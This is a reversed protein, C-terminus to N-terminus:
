GLSLHTLLKSWQDESLAASIEYLCHDVLFRNQDKVFKLAFVLSAALRAQDFKKLYEERSCTASTKLYDRDLKEAWTQYNQVTELGLPSDFASFFNQIYPDCNTLGIQQIALQCAMRVLDKLESLTLLDLRPIIEPNTYKLPSVM